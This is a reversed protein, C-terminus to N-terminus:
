ECLRRGDDHGCRHNLATVSKEDGSPRPANVQFAQQLEGAALAIGPFRERLADHALEAFLEVDVHRDAFFYERRRMSVGVPSHLQVEHAALNQADGAGLRTLFHPPHRSRIKVAQRERGGVGLENLQQHVPPLSPSSLGHM